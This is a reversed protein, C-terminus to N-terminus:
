LALIVMVALGLRYWAFATLGHRGLWNLLFSVTAAASIFAVALGVLLPGISVTQMLQAGTQWAEYGSAAGLTVLGLLFSFVAARPPTMGVWYGGVIAMMSRSTGPWMAVCQMLGILLSQGASLEHPLPGPRDNIRPGRRKRRLEVLFMLVAGAVLAVVVPWPGFLYRKIPEHLIVGGVAAPMFAIILNRLLRLGRHDQGALGLLMSFIHPWCQWIVALIAGAQIVISYADVTSKRTWPLGHRDTLPAGDRDLLPTEDSLGLFSGCLILHGTSSVPLFETLGEVLGLIVAQSYGFAQRGPSPPAGTERPLQIPTEVATAPPPAVPRIHVSVSDPAPQAARGLFAALLIILCAPIFPFRRM